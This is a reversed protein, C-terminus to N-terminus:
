PFIKWSSMAEYVTDNSTMMELITEQTHGGKDVGSSGFLVDLDFARHIFM